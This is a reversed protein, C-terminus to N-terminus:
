EGNTGADKIRFSEASTTCLADYADWQDQTTNCSISYFREGADLLVVLVKYPVEQQTMTIVIFRADRDNITKATQEVIAVSPIATRLQDLTDSTVTDLTRDGTTDFSVAIYSQFHIAAAASDESFQENTNVFTALAGTLQTEQWGAPPVISFGNGQYRDATVAAANTNSAATNTTVNDDASGIFYIVAGAIVIGVVILIILGKKM